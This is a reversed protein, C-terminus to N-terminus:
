HIITTGGGIFASADGGVMDAVATNGILVPGMGVAENFTDLGKEYGVDGLDNIQNTLVNVDVGAPLHYRRLRARWRLNWFANEKYTEWTLGAPCPTWCTDATASAATQDYYFEAQAVAMDEYVAGPGAAPAGGWTAIEVGDDARTIKDEEGRAVSYVQMYDNGNRSDVFPGKTSKDDPDLEDILDIEVVDEQEEDLDEDCKKGKKEDDEWKKCVDKKDFFDWSNHGGRGAGGSCVNNPLNGWATGGSMYALIADFTAPILIEVLKGVIINARECARAFPEDQIPLGFRDRRPVMSPSGAGAKAVYPAYMDGVTSGQAAGLWPSTRGVEKQALSLSILMANTDQTVNAIVSQMKEMLEKAPEVSDCAFIMEDYYNITGDPEGLDDYVTVDGANALTCMTTAVSIILAAIQALMASAAAIAMVSGTVINVMSVINMGRAHYVAATYATSDAGAQLTQRYIAAEGVGMVYWLGGVLFSSMFVGMLVIAGRNDDMLNKTTRKM